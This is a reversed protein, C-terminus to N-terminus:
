LDGEPKPHEIWEGLMLSGDIVKPLYTRKMWDYSSKPLDRGGVLQLRRNIEDLDAGENIAAIITARHLPTRNPGRPNTMGVLNAGRLGYTQRSWSRVCM